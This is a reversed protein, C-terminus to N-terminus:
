RSTTTMIKAPGYQFVSLQLVHRVAAKSWSSAFRVSHGHWRLRRAFFPGLVGLGPAPSGRIRKELRM